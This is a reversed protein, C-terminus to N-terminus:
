MPELLSTRFPKGEKYLNIRNQISQAYDEMGRSRAFEVANTAVDVAESFRGASALAAALTDISRPDSGGTIECAHDAVKIAETANRIEEDNNTALIWALRVAPESWDPRLRVLARFHHVAKKIEGQESYMRAINGHLTPFDPDIQLASTCYGIATDVEGIRYYVNALNNYAQVYTPDLQIAQEYYHIAKDLEGTDAYVNALNYYAPTYTPRIEMAKKHHEIAEDFKGQRALTVGLNDYANYYYPDLRIAEEYHPIAKEPQNKMVFANALNNHVEPNEPKISLGRNYYEIAEDLRGMEALAVGLNNYAEMYRPKLRIAEKFHDIAEDHKKQAVLENGLMDYAMWAAPNKKLTDTFLKWNNQYVSAHQSTLVGLTLLVFTLGFNLAWRESPKLMDAVKAILAAILLLIGISPLYQFRDAVFSIEMFTFSIFGLIPALSLIYFLAAALPGRGLRDRKLWLVILTALIGLPFLYLELSAVNINWGPYIAMLNFPFILKWFYFCVARSAILIRQVMSLNYDLPVKGSAILTDVAALVAAIVMFPVVSIIDRKEIKGKRWWLWLLIAIPLSVTMSKSLMACIYLFLALIYIGRRQNKKFSVYAHFTLLYFMLSLVDKREIVWVVSEVHVPHLAFLAAALWAGRIGLRGVLLWLLIVNVAHLLVNDFHYLFPKLGAIQYELWFTSYVLPWYHLEHPILSPATWIKFLGNDTRLLINETIADDDWIFNAKFAPFFAVFVIAVLMIGQVLRNSLITKKEAHAAGKKVEGRKKAM